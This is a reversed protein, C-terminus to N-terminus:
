KLSRSLPAISVSWQRDEAGVGVLRGADRSTETGREYFAVREWKTRSSIVLLPTHLGVGEICHRYPAVARINTHSSTGRDCKTTRVCPRVLLFPPHEPFPGVPDIPRRCCLHAALSRWPLAPWARRREDAPAHEETCPSREELLCHRTRPYKPRGPELM